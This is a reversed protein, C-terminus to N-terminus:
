SQSPLRHGRQVAGGEKNRSQVESGRLQKQNLEQVTAVQSPRSALAHYIVLTIKREKPMRPGVQLPESM